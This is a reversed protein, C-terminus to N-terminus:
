YILLGCVQLRAQEAITNIYEEGVPEAGEQAITFDAKTSAIIDSEHKDIRTLRMKTAATALGTLAHHFADVTHADITMERTVSTWQLIPLLSPLTCVRTFFFILSM